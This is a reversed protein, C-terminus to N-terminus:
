ENDSSSGNTLLLLQDQEWFKAGIKNGVNGAELSVLQEPENEGANRVTNEHDFTTAVVQLMDAQIKLQNVDNTLNTLKDIQLSLESDQLSVLESMATDSESDSSDSEDSTITVNTIYLLNWLIDQLQEDLKKKQAIKHLKNVVSLKKKLKDAKILKKKEQARKIQCRLTNVINEYKNM